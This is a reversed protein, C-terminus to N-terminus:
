WNGLRQWPMNYRERIQKPFSLKWVGFSCSSFKWNHFVFVNVDDGKEFIM